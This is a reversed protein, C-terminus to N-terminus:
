QLEPAHFDGSQIFPFCIKQVVTTEVSCWSNRGGFVLSFRWGLNGVGTWSDMRSGRTLSCLRGVCEGTVPKRCRDVGVWKSTVVGGVRM